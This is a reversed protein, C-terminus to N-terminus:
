CRRGDTRSERDDGRDVVWREAREQGADVAHACLCEGIPLPADDVVARSPGLHAAHEGRELVVVRPDTHEVPRLVTADDGRRVVPQRHSTALEDSEEIVVVLQHGGCELLHRRCEVRSGVDVVHVAVLGVHQDIAALRNVEQFGIPRGLPEARRHVGAVQRHQSAVEDVLDAPESCAEVPRLIVVQDQPGGLHDGGPAPADDMERVHQVVPAVDGTRHRPFTRREAVGNSAPPLRHLVLAFPKAQVGRHHVSRQLAGVAQHAGNGGVSRDGHDHRGPGLAAGRTRIPQRGCRRDSANRM